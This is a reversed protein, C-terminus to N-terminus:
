NFQVSAAWGTRSISVALRSYHARRRAAGVSYFFAILGGLLLALIALVEIIQSREYHSMGSAQGWTESRSWGRPGLPQPAGPFLQQSVLAQPNPGNKM